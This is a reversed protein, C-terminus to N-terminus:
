FLRLQNPDPIESYDSLREVISEALEHIAKAQQREDPAAIGQKAWRPATRIAERLQQPDIQEM